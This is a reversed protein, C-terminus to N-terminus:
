PIVPAVTCRCNCVNEASGSPDLPYLMIDVGGDLREVEFPTDLNEIAGDLLLHSDRTRDDLTALWEKQQIGTAKYTAMHGVNVTGGTETRAILYARTSSLESFVNRAGEQLKKAIVDPSEGNRVGESLIKRLEELLRKKTTSNIEKSKMLGYKDVWKNFYENTIVVEDLQTTAKYGKGFERLIEKANKRGEEMCALWSKGLGRKVAEDVEKTFYDNILNNITAENYNEENKIKALIDSAQKRAIKQVAVVFSPEKSKAKQDFGYWLKEKMKSIERNKKLVRGASGKLSKGEDQTQEPNDSPTQEPTEEEEPLDIEGLDFEEGAPIITSGIPLIYHGDEPDPNIGFKECFQEKTICGNQVGFSYIRLNLDDDEIVKIKHRCILDDYENLLQNNLVREFFRIRPIIVNKQTLYYSADITARNSNEIIGFVEPPLQYHQLCEDRLFKRSEVMDLEKPSIGLPKIDQSGTLVAPERAKRFGGMKEKLTAKLREAGQENGQYGTVVYPPTADNYFFNKQYKSAFEDTEIEDAISESLGKGNGYPDCLNVDKFYVFDKPDVTLTTGATEGYPMIQYFHNGVTPKQLIWEKPIPLLAVVKRGERIKLWGCEGVLDIYAFTLYRLTWGDLEPFTPCPNDLLDYLEHEGIIEAGEGNQRYDSKKYLKLEESACTKAIYRVPDLRPSNGYLRPLEGSARNPASSWRRKIQELLNL